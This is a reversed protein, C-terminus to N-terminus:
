ADKSALDLISCKYFPPLKTSAPDKTVLNEEGMAELPNRSFAIRFEDSTSLLELLRDAM